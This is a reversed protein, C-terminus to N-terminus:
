YLCILLTLLVLIFNVPSFYTNLKSYPPWSVGASPEVVAPGEVGGGRADVGGVTDGEEVNREVGGEEDEEGAGGEGEGEGNVVAAAASEAADGAAGGGVALVEGSVDARVPVEGGAEAEEGGAEAVEGGREVAANGEARGGVAGRERQDASWRMRTKTQSKEDELWYNLFHQPSKSLLAAETPAFSEM